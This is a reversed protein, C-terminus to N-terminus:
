KGFAGLLGGLGGVCPLLLLIPYSFDLDHVVLASVGVAVRSATVVVKSATITTAGTTGKNGVM